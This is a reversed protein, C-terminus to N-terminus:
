ILNGHKMVEISIYAGWEREHSDRSALALVTDQIFPVIQEPINGPLFNPAFFEVLFNCVLTLAIPFFEQLQYLLM